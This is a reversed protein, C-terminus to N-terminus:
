SFETKLKIKTSKPSGWLGKVQSIIVNAISMVTQTLHGVVFFIVFISTSYRNIKRSSMYTLIIGCVGMGWMSPWFLLPIFASEPFIGLSIPLWWDRSALVCCSAKSLSNAGDRQLYTSRTPPPTATRQLLIAPASDGANSPKTVHETYKIGMKDRLKVPVM